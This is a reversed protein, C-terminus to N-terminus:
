TRDALIHAAKKVGRNRFPIEILRYNLEAIVVILVIATILFRLTYTSGFITQESSIRMWIEHTLAYVVLHCLYISYSRSGIWVLVERVFGTIPIYQRDYSAFWVLIASIIAVIGTYFPVIEFGSSAFVLLAILALPIAKGILHTHVFKPEFIIHAESGLKLSILVGLLLADTRLAWMLSWPERHFFTQALIALCAFIWLRQGFLVAILPLLIYFQEELSLSWYIGLIGTSGCVSNKTTLCEHYHFNQIQLVVAVADLFNGKADGFASSQNFAITCIFVIMVWLWASPLIRYARRVWFACIVKLKSESTGASNLEALLSRGIVFGSIALFLDVGSWLGLLHLSQNLTESGWFFLAGLHAFLIYTIAIGRLVEIDLNKQKTVHIIQSNNNM